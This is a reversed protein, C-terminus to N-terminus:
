AASKESGSKREEKRRAPKRERDDSEHSPLRRQIAALAASVQELGWAAVALGAAQAADSITQIM